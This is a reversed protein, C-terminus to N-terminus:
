GPCRQCRLGGGHMGRGVGWWGGDEGSAKHERERQRRPNFLTFM